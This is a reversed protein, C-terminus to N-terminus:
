PAMEATVDYGAYGAPDIIFGSGLAHLTEPQAPGGNPRLHRFLEGLPSGPPFYGEPRPRRSAALDLEQYQPSLTSVIITDV